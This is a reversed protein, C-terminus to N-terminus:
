PPLSHTHQPLPTWISYVLCSHPMSKYDVLSVARMDTNQPLWIPQPSSNCHVKCTHSSDDPPCCCATPDLSTIGLDQHATSYRASAMKQLVVAPPALNTIGMDQRAASYRASAMTQLVVAPPARSTIGMDQHATSYCAPAMTQLVVAPPVQGHVRLDHGPSHLPRLIPLHPAAPFGKHPATAAM